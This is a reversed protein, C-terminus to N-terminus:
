RVLYIKNATVDWQIFMGFLSRVSGASVYINGLINKPHFDLEFEKENILCFKNEETLRITNKSSLLLTSDSEAKIEYGLAAAIVSVPILLKDSSIVPPPASFPVGNLTYVNNGVRNVKECGM